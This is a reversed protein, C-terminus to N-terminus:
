RKSWPALVWLPNKTVDRRSRSFGAHGAGPRRPPTECEQNCADYEGGADRNPDHVEVADDNAFELAPVPGHRRADERRREFKVGTGRYRRAIEFLLQAPKV